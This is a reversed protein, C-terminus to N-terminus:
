NRDPITSTGATLQSTDAASYNEQFKELSQQYSPANELRELVRKDKNYVDPFYRFEGFPDEYATFYVIYVEPVQDLVIKQNKGGLQAVLKEKNWATDTKLLITAFDRPDAIRVCGSSRARNGYSFYSKSPTDHIYIYHRNPFMFKVVGLSNNWGPQQRLKYPLSKSTYNGWNVSDPNIAEGSTTLVQINKKRLYETNETLEPLVDKALITPPITWTPNLEMYTMAAQLSPTQRSKKGVVTKSSFIMSDDQFLYAMYEPTNALVYYDSVEQPLWRSREVNARLIQQLEFPSKNLWEATQLGIVGDPFLGFSSQFVKVSDAMISDYEIAGLPISDNYFGKWSLLNLLANIGEGKHGIEIKSGEQVIIQPPFPTDVSLRELKEFESQYGASFPLQGITYESVSNFDKTETLLGATFALDISITDLIFWDSDTAKITDVFGTSQKDLFYLVRDTIAFDLDVAEISSISLEAAVFSDINDFSSQIENLSLIGEQLFVNSFQGTFFQYLSTDVGSEGIWIPYFGHKSYLACLQQSYLYTPKAQDNLYLGSCISDVRSALLEKSSELDILAFGPEVEAEPTKKEKEICGIFLLLSFIAIVYLQKVVHLKCIPPWIQM